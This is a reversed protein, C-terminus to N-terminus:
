ANISSRWWSCVGLVFVCVLIDSRVTSFIQAYRLILELYGRFPEPLFGAVAWAIGSPPARGRDLFFRSTLLVTEATAFAYFFYQKFLDQQTVHGHQHEFASQEREQLTGMFPTRIAIYLGLGLAVVFHMIRWISAYRDAVVSQTTAGQQPPFGFPNAGSGGGMGSGMGPMGGMMQSLMKMMPDDEMGPLGEAGGPGGGGMGLFPNPGMMMQRLQDESIGPADMGGGTRPATRPPYFHQSIDVEEPDGHAHHSAPPPTTRTPDPTSTGSASQASATPIDTSPMTDPLSCLDEHARYPLRVESL